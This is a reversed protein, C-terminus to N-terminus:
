SLSKGYLNELVIPLKELSHNAEIYRRARQGMEARLNPDKILRLLISTFSHQNRPDVLFGTRENLILNPVGGVRTAVVPLGSAMAELLVNPTGEWDSTLLFIDTERYVQIMDPVIGRFELLHPLLGLDSAEKELQSREPGDGVITAKIKTSTNESIRKVISLFRDVRKQPVLRGATLLRITKGDRQDSPKFQECNVVNPLYYLRSAPMGLQTANRIGAKSNAAVLRPARLSLPGYVRGNANVESIADNRLAAIERIGLLRSAAVVYLNTYFHQSQFIDPRDKRLIAIIKALRWLKWGCQGVWIIPVNLQQIKEEWFEKSTLCLLKPNAGSRVLTELMYYLQREAGGQSLTGALFYIKM